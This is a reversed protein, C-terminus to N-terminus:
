TVPKLSFKELAEITRAVQDIFTRVLKTYATRSSDTTAETELKSALARADEAGIMTLSPKMKHAIGGIDTWAKNDLHKRINELHNNSSNLFSHIIDFIFTQDHNSVQILYTLDFHLGPKATASRAPKRNIAKAAGAFRSLIGSLEAPTFPKPLYGNMGAATCQDIIAQTANATLAIVPINRISDDGLRIARTAEFGDMVPMQIDMLILGPRFTKLKELAIFGDEAIQYSLGWSKLISSAYLKNIDNDEVLLVSLNNFSEPDTTPAQLTSRTSSDGSLSYPIVVTFISGVGEISNVRITGNQLEALQKVITLGLGTGGYKRTISSDAQVFREFLNGLKDPPIGIGTDKVEFKLHWQKKEKKDVSVTVTISGQHTFKLANGVLNILIQNLRVPDGFFIRHTEPSQETVLSLNKNRVQVTFTSALAPLLEELNFAIKEFKLKGSEIASVDLIDNIIVKLNEAASRIANLYTKAEEPPTGTSLLSAIGSIGNIPTRIEHSINAMFQEKVQQAHLLEAADRKRQTIDRCDLILGKIGEKHYLNISNFELFKYSGDKCKFQFEVGRNFPKRTSAKFGKRTSAASGPNLLDFFSRGTLTGAAYGLNRRVAHNHYLILGEHDVIFIVDSGDEVVSRFFGGKAVYSKLPDRPM